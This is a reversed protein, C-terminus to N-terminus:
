WRAITRTEINLPQPREKCGVAPVTRWGACHPLSVTRCGDYYLPGASSSDGSGGARVEGKKVGECAETYGLAYWTTSSSTNGYRTMCYPLATMSIARTHLPYPLHTRSLACVRAAVRPERSTARPDPVPRHLRGHSAALHAGRYNLSSVRRCQGPGPKSLCWTASRGSSSGLWGLVGFGALEM